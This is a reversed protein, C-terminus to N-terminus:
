HTANAGQADACAAAFREFAPDGLAQVLAELLRPLPLAVRLRVCGPEADLDAEVEEPDARLRVVPVPPWVPDESEEEALYDWTEAAVGGVLHALRAAAAVLRPLAAGVERLRDDVEAAHQRCYFHDPPLSEGCVACVDDRYM